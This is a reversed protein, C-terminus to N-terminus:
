GGTQKPKETGFIENGKKISDIRKLKQGLFPREVMSAILQKAVGIKEAKAPSLVVQELIDKGTMMKILDPTMDKKWKRDGIRDETIYNPVLQGKKIRDVALTELSSTKIKVLESARSLLDLQNSLEQNNINDQVFDHVVELGNYFAKSFAPCSSAAPCYKCQPGTVLNSEGNSIAAMRNEIQEKYNWLESKTLAWERTSGEEHHPRPQHIRLVVRNIAMVGELQLVRGIGYAILQWNEKPEVIGWGYKYDDVYLVGDRYFSFDYTGTITIGSKTKWDVKQETVVPSTRFSEIENFLANGYFKMDDDFQVGNKAHTPPTRHNLIHELYEGAATGEKAAENTQEEPLDCFFLSGACSM